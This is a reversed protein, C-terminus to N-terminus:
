RSPQRALVRVVFHPLALMRRWRWPERMLRHLWELGRAQMWRPARRARGSLFDFAGGVGMAVRAGTRELNRAIWLDQAPAGYAVLLIDPRGARVIASIAGEEQPSPSGAHTGAVVLGPFQARLSAAAAAAVGPRGGLLFFRWGSGAGRAALGRVFDVGAVRTPLPDGLRRAAWILGAGDPLGLDATHLVQAFAPDRRARMVFEPNVTVIRRPRGEKLVAAVWDVAEAETVAHVPVGLIELRRV